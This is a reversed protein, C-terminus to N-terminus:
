KKLFEQQLFTTFETELEKLTAPVRGRKTDKAALIEEMSKGEAMRDLMDRFFEPGGRDLLYAVLAWSQHYFVNIKNGDGDAIPHDMTLLQKLTLPAAVMANEGALIERLDDKRWALLEAPENWVALGEDIWDPFPTGIQYGAGLVKPALDPYRDAVYRVFMLHTVEHTLAHDPDHTGLKKKEEPALIPWPLTWEKNDTTATGGGHTHGLGAHQVQVLSKVGNKENVKAKSPYFTITGGYTGKGFLNIFRETAVELEKGRAELFEKSPGRLHFNKTELSEKAEHTPADTSGSNQIVTHGRRELEKTLRDVEAIDGSSAAKKVRDLLAKDDVRELNKSEDKQRKPPDPEQAAGPMATILLSCSCLLALPLKM